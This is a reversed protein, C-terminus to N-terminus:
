ELPTIEVAYIKGNVKIYNMHELCEFETWYFHGVEYGEEIIFEDSANNYMEDGSNRLEEILHKKNKYAKGDCCIFGKNFGKNTKTCIEAYLKADM